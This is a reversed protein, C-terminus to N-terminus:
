LFGRGDSFGLCTCTICTPYPGFAVPPRATLSVGNGGDGRWHPWDGRAAAACVTVLVVLVSWTFPRHM